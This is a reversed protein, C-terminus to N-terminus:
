GSAGDHETRKNGFIFQEDYGRLIGAAADSEQDEDDQRMRLTTDFLQLTEAKNAVTKL